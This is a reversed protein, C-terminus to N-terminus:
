RKLSMQAIFENALSGVNKFMSKSKSMAHESAWDFEFGLEGAYDELALCLEVLKMSDMHSYEGILPTDDKIKEVAGDFVGVISSYIREKIDQNNM